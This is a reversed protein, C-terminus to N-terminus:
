KGFYESFYELTRCAVQLAFRGQEKQGPITYVRVHIPTAEKPLTPYSIDELYELEGVVFAL